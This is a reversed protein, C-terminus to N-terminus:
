PQVLEPWAGQDFRAAFDACAAPLLRRQGDPGWVHRDGVWWDGYGHDALYAALPCEYLRGPRGQIQLDLLRAAVEDPTTGLRALLAAPSPPAVPCVRTPILTM